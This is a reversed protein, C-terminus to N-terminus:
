FLIQISCRLRLPLLVTFEFTVQAKKKKKGNTKPMFSYKFRTGTKPMDKDAPYSWSVVQWESDIDKTDGGKRRYIPRVKFVVTFDKFKATETMTDGYVADGNPLDVNDPWYKHGGENFYWISPNVQNGDRDTHQVDADGTDDLVRKIQINDGYGGQSGEITSAACSSHTIKLRLIDWQHLTVTTLIGTTIKHQDLVMQISLSM